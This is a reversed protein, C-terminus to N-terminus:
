RESFAQPESTFFSIQTQRFTDPILTTNTGNLQLLTKNGGYAPWYTANSGPGNPDTYYAFNLWYNIMAQSLAVDAETYNLAESVLGYVFAVESGHYSGLYPEAGPTLANFLYSWTQTLGHSNSQDLFWRRNTQFGNDGIIAALQKFEPALGFTENGTGFPSGMSPDNPYLSLIDGLITSNPTKPELVSLALEVEVTSNIYTPTFLTGEDQNNGSIFPIKAFKGQQLLTHPSDPIIGGDISPAFDFGAYQPLALGEISANLLTAAPLAKLCEFTSQNGASTGNSAACGSNVVIQNYLGQFDQSTPGIPATSQAGSEM